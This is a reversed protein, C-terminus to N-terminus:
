GGDILLQVGVSLYSGQHSMDSFKFAVFITIEQHFAGLPLMVCYSDDINMSSFNDSAPRCDIRLYTQWRHSPKRLLALQAHGVSM